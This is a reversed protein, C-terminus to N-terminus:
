IGNEKIHRIVKLIIHNGMKLSQKLYLLLILLNKLAEKKIAKEQVQLLEQKNKETKQSAKVIDKTEKKGM